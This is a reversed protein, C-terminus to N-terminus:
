KNLQQFNLSLCKTKPVMESKNKLDDLKAKELNFYHIEIKALKEIEAQHMELIHQLAKNYQDEIRKKNAEHEECEKLLQLKQNSNGM